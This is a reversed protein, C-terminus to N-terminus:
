LTQFLLGTSSQITLQTQCRAAKMSRQIRFLIEIKRQPTRPPGCPDELKRHGKALKPISLRIAPPRRPDEFPSPIVPGPHATPGPVRDGPQVLVDVVFGHSRNRTISLLNRPRAGIETKKDDAGDISTRVLITDKYVPLFSTVPIQVVLGAKEARYTRLQCNPYFLRYYIHLAVNSYAAAQKVEREKEVRKIEDARWRANDKSVRELFQSQTSPSTVVGTIPDFDILRFDSRYAVRRALIADQTLCHGM